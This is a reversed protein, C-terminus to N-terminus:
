GFLSFSGKNGTVFTIVSRQADNGSQSNCCIGQPSQGICTDVASKLQVRSQPSFAPTPLACCCTQARVIKKQKQLTPLLLVLLTITHTGLNTHTLIPILDMNFIKTAFEGACYKPSISTCFTLFLIWLHSPLRCIQPHQHM